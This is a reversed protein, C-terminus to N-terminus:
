SVHEEEDGFLWSARHAAGKHLFNLFLPSNLRILRFASRRVADMLLNLLFLLEFHWRARRIEKLVKDITALGEVKSINM